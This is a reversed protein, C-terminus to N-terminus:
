SNNGKDSNVPNRVNKKNGLVLKEYLPLLNYTLENGASQKELKEVCFSLMRAPLKIEKGDKNEDAVEKNYSIQSQGDTGTAVQHIDYTRTEEENFRIEPEIDRFTKLLEYSGKAPFLGYLFIRDEIGFKL